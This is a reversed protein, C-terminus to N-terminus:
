ENSNWEWRNTNELVSTGHTDSNLHSLLLRDKFRNFGVWV